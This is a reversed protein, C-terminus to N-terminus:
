ENGGAAGARPPSPPEVRRNMRRWGRSVEAASRRLLARSTTLCRM